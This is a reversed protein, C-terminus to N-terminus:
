TLQHHAAIFASRDMSEQIAIRENIKQKAKVENPFWEKMFAILGHDVCSSDARM